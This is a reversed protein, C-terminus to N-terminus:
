TAYYECLYDGAEEYSRGRLQPRLAAEFGTRYTSEIRAFEGDPADYAAEEADRLGVWWQERAADLSEAGARALVDRAMEARTEDEALVIVVIRGQRLAEEYVFLEDQPLGTDLSQELAGGAAAGVAAGVIGSLATFVFGLAIVPGVGPMFISAVAPATMGGWSLGTAAGVVGGI